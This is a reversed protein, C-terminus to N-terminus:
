PKTSWDCWRGSHNYWRRVNFLDSSDPSSKREPQRFLDDIKDLDTRRLVVNGGLNLWKGSLGKEDLLNLNQAVLATKLQTEFTILSNSQNQM